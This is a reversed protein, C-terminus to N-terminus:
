LLSYFSDLGQGIEWIGIGALRWQEVVKLRLHISRLTPYYVIKKDYPFTFYHEGAAEDYFAQVKGASKSIMELLSSGLIAEPQESSKQTYKYGYFNFGLLLKGALKSYTESKVQPPASTPSPNDLLLHGLTKRIMHDLPSIPGLMGHSNSFDYTMVIFRHVYPELVLLQERDILQEKNTFQPLGRYPAIVLIVKIEAQKLRQILPTLFNTLIMKTQIFGYEFVIGEMNYQRCRDIIQAAIDRVYQQQIPSPSFLQSVQQQAFNTYDIMVRPYIKSVGVAEMWAEDVDHDGSVVFQYHAEEGEKAPAIRFWVPAVYNFKSSHEKALDYGRSNWQTVFALTEHKYREDENMLNDIFANEEFSRRQQYPETNLLLREVKQITEKVVHRDSGPSSKFTPTPRYSNKQDQNAALFIGIAVVLIFGIFGITRKDM